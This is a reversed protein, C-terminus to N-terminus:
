GTAVSAAREDTRGYGSGFALLLLAYGALALVSALGYAWSVDYGESTGLAFMLLAGAPAPIARVALLTAGIAALWAPRSPDGATRAVAVTAFAVLGLSSAAAIASSALYVPVDFAGASGDSLSGAVVIDLLVALVAGLVGAVAVTAAPFTAVAARDRRASALVLWGAAPVVLTVVGYVATLPDIGSTEPPAGRWVADVVAAVPPLIAVLVGGLLLRDRLSATPRAYLVASPLLVAAGDALVEAVRNGTGLLSDAALPALALTDLVVHVISLAVFAWFLPPMERLRAELRGRLDGLAPPLLLRDVVGSEDVPPIRPEAM